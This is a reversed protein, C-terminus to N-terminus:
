QIEFVTICTPLSQENIMKMGETYVRKYVGVWM